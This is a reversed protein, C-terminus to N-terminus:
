FHFHTKIHDTRVGSDDTKKAQAPNLSLVGLRTLIEKLIIEMHRNDFGSSLKICIGLGDPFDNCQVGVGLLGDAGEKAVIRLEPTAIEAFTEHTMLKYDLRGSGSILRPFKEMLPGLESWCSLYPGSMSQPNKQATRQMGFLSQYFAAMEFTSLAYNPLQCGDTTHVFEELPRGTFGSLIEKLRMHHPNGPDLYTELPKGEAKLAALYSTHKGSCNHYRRSTKEGKAKALVKTEQSLPAAAPCRLSKEEVGTIQWVKELAAIHVPEASHSAMFLAFHEEELNPYSRKLEDMHSLLQWPKLLSRTWLTFDTDGYGILAKYRDRLPKAFENIDCTITNTPVCASVIGYVTVEAKAGREITFIPQWPLNHATM